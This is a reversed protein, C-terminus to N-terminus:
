AKSFQKLGEVLQDTEAQEHNQTFALLLGNKIQSSVDVGGITGLNFLHKNVDGPSSPCEAVFENFYEGTMPLRFGPIESIQSAAYHAKKRNSLALERLGRAGMGGIYVATRLAVNHENTTINSTAREKMAFQERSLYGLQYGLRGEKDHAPQVLRGPLQYAHDLKCTFFGLYPGGFNTPSGLSQAEGVVIDADFKGPPPNYLALSLPNTVYVVLKAGKGHAAKSWFDLDELYGFYNPSQVLVCATNEDIESIDLSSARAIELERGSSYTKVVDLSSPQLTNAAVVKRRRERSLRVSMLAAEGLASAGDYMGANSIEMGTLECMDTQYEFITTLTGQSLEAQYPTYATLFRRDSAVEGVFAPIYHEYSGSGLFSILGKNHYTNRAAIQDYLKKLEPETLASPLNLTPNLKDQPIDQYLDNVHSVGIKALMARRDADTGPIYPHPSGGEIENM